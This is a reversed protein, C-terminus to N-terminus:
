ILKLAEIIGNDWAEYRDTVCKNDLARIEYLKKGVKRILHNFSKGGDDSCTYIELSIGKEYLWDIAQQYTPALVFSVQSNKRIPVQSIRFLFDFEHEDTASYGGLCKEDFGKEKLKLALEYPLFLHNM